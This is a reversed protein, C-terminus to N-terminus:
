KGAAVRAWSVCACAHKQTGTDRRPGLFPLIYSGAVPGIFKKPRRKEGWFTFIVAFFPVNHYFIVL